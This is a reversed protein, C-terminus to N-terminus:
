QHDQVPLVRGALSLLPQTGLLAPHSPSPHASIPVSGEM